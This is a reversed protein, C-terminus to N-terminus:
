HTVWWGAAAAGCAWSADSLTIWIHENRPARAISFGAAVLCAAAAQCANRRLPSRTCWSRRFARRRKWDYVAAKTIRRKTPGVGRRRMSRDAYDRWYSTRTSTYASVFRIICTCVTRTAHARPFEGAGAHAVGGLTLYLAVALLACTGKTGSM